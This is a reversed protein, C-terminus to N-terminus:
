GCEKYGIGLYGVGCLNMININIVSGFINYWYSWFVGICMEIGYNM